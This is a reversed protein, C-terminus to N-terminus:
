LFAWDTLSISQGTTMCISPVGGVPHRSSPTADVYLRAFKEAVLLNHDLWDFNRRGELYHPFAANRQGQANAPRLEFRAQGYKNTSQAPIPIM